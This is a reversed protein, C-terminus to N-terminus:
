PQEANVLENYLALTQAVTTELRFDTAIRLKAQKGLRRCMERDEYLTRLARGLTDADGAPVVLGSVEHEVLEPNGGSDSVVPTTEYAMAEIVSRPLGERRLSPLVSVDSAAMLAPADARFGLVHIRDKHPSVAIQQSIPASDMGNGVLLIHLSPEVPLARVSEIFLPVGKRPRVNTVCCIVFAGASIGHEALDAPAERYWALDHGKHITALREPPLHIGFGGLELFNRRVADAVCIIRDVRPNLFSLWDVPNLYSVNGMIGRYLVVRADTGKAAALGNFIPRKRLLHLIQSGHGAIHDRIVDIGERDRKSDLKLVAYPVGADRLWGIHASEEWVLVKLDVGAEHLGVFTGTEPRDAADTIALVRLDGM